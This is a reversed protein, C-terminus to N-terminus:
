IRDTDIPLPDAEILPILSSIIVTETTLNSVRLRIPDKPHVPIPAPARRNENFGLFGRGRTKEIITENRVVQEVLVNESSIPGTATPFFSFDDYVWDGAPFEIDLIRDETGPSIRDFSYAYALDPLAGVHSRISEHRQGLLDGEFLETVVRIILTQSSRNEVELSFTEGAPVEIPRGPDYESQDFTGNVTQLHVDRWETKRRGVQLTSVVNARGFDQENLLIRNIGYREPRLAETEFTRTQGSPITLIEGEYHPTGTLLESYPNYLRM